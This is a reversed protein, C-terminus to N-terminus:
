IIYILNRGRAVIKRATVNFHDPYIKIERVVTPSIILDLHINGANKTLGRAEDHWHM